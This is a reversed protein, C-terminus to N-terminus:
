RPLKDTSSPYLLKTSLLHSFENRRRLFEEEIGEIGRKNFPELEHNRYDEYLSAIARDISGPKIPIEG